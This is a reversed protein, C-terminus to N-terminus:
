VSAWAARGAPCLLIGALARALGGTALGLGIGKGGGEWWFTLPGTTHKFTHTNEPYQNTHGGFSAQDPLGSVKSEM